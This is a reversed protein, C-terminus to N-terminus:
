SINLQHLPLRKWFWPTGCRYGRSAGISMTGTNLQFRKNPRTNSQSAKRSTPCGRSANQQQRQRVTALRPMSQLGRWSCSLRWGCCVPQIGAASPTTGTTAHQQRVLNDYTPNTSQSRTCSKFSLNSALNQVHTQYISNTSLTALQHTPTSPLLHFLTRQVHLPAAGLFCFFVM